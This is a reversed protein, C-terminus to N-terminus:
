IQFKINKLLRYLEICFTLEVEKKACEPIEMKSTTATRTVFHMRRFLSQIWWRSDLDIVELEKKGSRKVLVKAVSRAVVANVVGDKRRVALLFGQVMQNTEGLLIPRGRKRAATVKKPSFKKRAADKIMAKYKKKFLRLASEGIAGHSSQFKRQACASGNKSAYKGILYCDKETFTQNKRKGRSTKLATQAASVATEHNLASIGSEHSIVSFDLIM